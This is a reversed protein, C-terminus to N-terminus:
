FCGSFFCFFHGVFDAEDSLVAAVCSERGHLGVDGTEPGGTEPGGAGPELGCADVRLEHRRGRPLTIAWKRLVM